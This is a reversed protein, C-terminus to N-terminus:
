GRYATAELRVEGDFYSERQPDTPAKVMFEWLSANAYPTDAMADTVPIVYRASSGDETDPELREFERTHAGRYHLDLNGGPVDEDWTMTAEVRETGLPVLTDNVPRFFLVDCGLCLREFGPLPYPANVQSFSEEGDFLAIETRNGWHDPHPPFPRLELGRHARVELTVDGNYSRFRVPGDARDLHVEFEWGSGLQHPLDAEEYALPREVTQGNDLDDDVLTVNTADAPKVWLEVDGYVNTPLDDTWTVTITLSATGQPVVDGEDPYFRVIRPSEGGGVSTTGVPQTENVVTVVDNGGWYDHVHFGADTDYSLDTPDTITPWDPEESTQAPGGICGASLMAVVLVVASLSNAPRM